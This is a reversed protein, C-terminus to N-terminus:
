FRTARKTRKTFARIVEAAVTQAVKYADWLDSPLYTQGAYRDEVNPFSSLKVSADSFVQSPAIQLIRELLKSLNHGIKKADEETLGQDRALLAKLSMECAERSSQMANEGPRQACLDKVASRLKRDGSVTLRQWFDTANDVLNLGRFGQGYDLCDRWLAKFNELDDTSGFLREILTVPMSSLADRGELVQVGYITPIDVPWFYADFYFAGTFISPFSLSGRPSRAAFWDLIQNAKPHDFGFSEGTEKCWEFWARQPRGIHPVEQEAMRQNFSELWESLIPM